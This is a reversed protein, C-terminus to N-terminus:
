DLIVLSMSAIKNDADLLVKIRDETQDKHGIIVEHTNYNFNYSIIDDKNDALYDKIETNDFDTSFYKTNVNDPDSVFEYVIKSFNDSTVREESDPEASSNQFTDVHSDVFVETPQFMHVIIVLAFAVLLIIVPLLRTKQM